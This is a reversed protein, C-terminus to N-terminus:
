TYLAGFKFGRKRLALQLSRQHPGELTRPQFNRGIQWRPDFCRQCLRQKVPQPQFQTGAIDHQAGRADFFLGAAPPSLQQEM